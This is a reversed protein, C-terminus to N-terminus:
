KKKTMYWAAAAAIALGIITNQDAGEGNGKSEWDQENPMMAGGIPAVGLARDPALEDAQQRTKNMMDSILGVIATILGIIASITVPDLSITNSSSAAILKSLSDEPNEGSTYIYTNRAMDELLGRDGGTLYQVGDLWQSQVVSKSNVSQTYKNMSQVNSGYAYLIGGGVQGEEQFVTRQLYEQWVGSNEEVWKEFAIKNDNNPFSMQFFRGMNPTTIASARQSESLQALYNLADNKGFVTSSETKYTLGYLSVPVSATAGTLPNIVINQMVPNGQADLLASDKNAVLWNYVAKAVKNVPQAYQTNAGFSFKTPDFSSKLYPLNLTNLAGIRHSTRQWSFAPAPNKLKTEILRAVAQETQSSLVGVGSIRSNMVGQKLAREVLALSKNYEVANDPNFSKLLQLQRRLFLAKAEGVSTGVLDFIEQKPANARKQELVQMRKKIAESLDPTRM